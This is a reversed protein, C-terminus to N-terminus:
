PKTESQEKALASARLRLRSALGAAREALNNMSTRQHDNYRKLRDPVDGLTRMSEMLSRRFNLGVYAFSELAEAVELGRLELFKTLRDDDQTEDYQPVGLGDLAAGLPDSALVMTPLKAGDERTCGYLGEGLIMVAVGAVADSYAEITCRDSPNEIVYAMTTRTM